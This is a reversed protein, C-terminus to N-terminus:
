NGDEDVEEPLLPLEPLIPRSAGRMLQVPEEAQELQLDRIYQYKADTQSQSRGHLGPGFLCYM